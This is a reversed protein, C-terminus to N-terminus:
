NLIQLVHDNGSHFERAKTMLRDTILLLESGNYGRKEYHPIYDVTDSHFTHGTRREEIWTSYVTPLVQVFKSYSINIKIGDECKQAHFVVVNLMGDSPSIKIAWEEATFHTYRKIRHLKDDVWDNTVGYGDLLIIIDKNHEVDLEEISVTFEGEGHNFIIPSLDNATIALKIGWDNNIPIILPLPKNLLSTNIPKIRKFKISEVNPGDRAGARRPSGRSSSTDDEIPGNLSISEIEIELRELRGITESNICSQITENIDNFKHEIASVMKNVTQQSKILHKYFGVEVVPIVIQQENNSVTLVIDKTEDIDDAPVNEILFDVIGIMMNAYRRPDIRQISTNEYPAEVIATTALENM